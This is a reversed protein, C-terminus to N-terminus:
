LFYYLLKLGNLLILDLGQTKFINIKCSWITNQILIRKHIYFTLDVALLPDFMFALMTTGTGSEPTGAAM